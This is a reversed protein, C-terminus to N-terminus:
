GSCWPPAAALWGDWAAGVGFVSEEKYSDSGSVTDIAQSLPNMGALQGIAASRASLTFPQMAAPPPYPYPLPVPHFVSLM